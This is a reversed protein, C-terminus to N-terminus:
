RNSSRVLLTTRRARHREPPRQAHRHHRARRFPARGPLGYGRGAIAGGLAGRGRQLLLGFGLASMAIAIFISYATWNIAYSVPFSTQFALMAIFHTSWIGAGFVFAAAATWIERQRNRSLRARSLLAGATWCAFLCLVLAIAVLRLDHDNTICGLVQLM